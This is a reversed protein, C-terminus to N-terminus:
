ISKKKAIMALGSATTLGGMAGIANMLMNVTSGTAAYDTTAGLVDGGIAPPATCEPCSSKGDSRGDSLGDGPGGTNGGNSPTETPTPTPSKDVVPTPTPTGSPDKPCDTPRPTGTPTTTPEESMAQTPLVVSAALMLASVAGLMQLTHKKM